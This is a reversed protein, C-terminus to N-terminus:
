KSTPYGTGSAAGYFERAKVFEIKVATETETSLDADRSLKLRQFERKPFTLDLFDAVSLASVRKDRNVLKANMIRDRMKKLKGRDGLLVDNWDEGLYSPLAIRVLHGPDALQKALQSTSKTSHWLGKAILEKLVAEQSCGKSRCKWVPKGNKVEVDLSPNHDDHAPCKCRGKSPTTM